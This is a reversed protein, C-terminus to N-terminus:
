FNRSSYLAETDGCISPDSCSADLMVGPFHYASLYFHGSYIHPHLAAYSSAVLCIPECLMIFISNAKKDLTLEKLTLFTSM